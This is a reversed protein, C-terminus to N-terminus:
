EASGSRDWLVCGSAKAQTVSREETKNIPLQCYIWQTQREMVCWLWLWLWLWLLKRLRLLGLTMSCSSRRRANANAGAATVVMVMVMIHM